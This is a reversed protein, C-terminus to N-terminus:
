SVMCEELVIVLVRDRDRDGSSHLMSGTWMESSGERSSRRPSRLTDRSGIGDLDGFLGLEFYFEHEDVRM